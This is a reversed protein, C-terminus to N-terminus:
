SLFCHRNKRRKEIIEAGKLFATVLIDMNKDPLTHDSYGIVLNNFQKKLVSILGLNAQSNLTPYNLVCHM